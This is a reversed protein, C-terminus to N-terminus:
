GAAHGGDVPLVVGTVYSAGDSCLWVVSSAVEDLTGTRDMPVRALLAALTEPKAAPGARLMDTMIPGPAIVNVRIGQTAYEMAAAKSLGVVAHKSAVYPSILRMGVLGALSAVNVIAGGGNALMARIEHKLALFVGRLNVDVLRDFDEEAIDALLNRSIQIGANNVAIDIRGFATVTAAVANAISAGELMDMQVIQAREGAPDLDAAVKRLLEVDRSGLMVRAGSAIFARAIAEGIGRSAGLILAAKGQLPKGSYLPNSVAM